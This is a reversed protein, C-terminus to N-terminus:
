RRRLVGLDANPRFHLAFKTNIWSRPPVRALEFSLALEM